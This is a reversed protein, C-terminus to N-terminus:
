GPEPLPQGPAQEKGLASQRGDTASRVPRAVGGTEPYRKRYSAMFDTMTDANVVSRAVDRFAQPQTIRDDSILKFAGADATKSMPALYRGRLRNLSLHEEGLVYALGARLADSRQALTLPEDRQWADGLVREYSEGAERWKKGKWYIDARLRDVDEGSDNALVEIALDTRFLEGLARAEILTRPRRLDEPVSALRTARLATLAQTPQRNQLYMIALRTAVSSRAVGELRNKIQHELIETAESVLDLDHLRDALRRAIEDGRRGVPMLSRFEQYIALAEVKSLKDTEKNLFLNEFRRGMAEEMRRTAPHDPMIATARQSALFAERWRGENAYFEGLRELSKVEVESRRWIAALTEFEARADEPTIKGDALGASARGFRAEAAIRRDRSQMALSYSNFAEANQGQSEALRAALLQQVNPDRFRTDIREFALLQDRAFAPEQAEIAAVIAFQRFESQLAEPYRDLEYQSLKFNAAAQPYRLAKADVVAQLLKQEGEVAIAPEALLRTADVLRGMMTSAFAKLFLIQKSTGAQRDDASLVDLVALAEPYLQNALYFHALKARAESRTVRPAEAAARLFDRETERITGRSDRNWSDLDLMLARKQVPPEVKEKPLSSLNLKIEHGILVSEALRKITVAEDIPLAAFGALTPEISFEAFVMGKPNALAANPVPVLALRQGSEPDEIMHLAGAKGVLAELAERGADDFARRTTIMEGSFASTTGETKGRQIILDRDKRLLWFRGESAPTVRILTGGKVRAIKLGEINKTLAPPISPMNLAEGTEVLVFLGRGRQVIAVPADGLEGLRLAFGQPDIGPEILTEIPRQADLAQISITQPPTPEAAAKAEATKPEVTKPEATKPEATKAAPAAKSADPAALAARATMEPAKGAPEAPAEAAKPSPEDEIRAGDTREFDISFTDDERFGRFRLGTKPKLRIRLSEEAPEVDVGDVLGALRARINEASITFNADFILSIEGNRDDFTVPATRPMQFTARKFQPATGVRLTLERQVLKAEDQAIKRLRDEAQRARRVLDQVVEAPLAPPLGVWNQPLIDLYLREGAPKLDVRYRENLGLRLSKGDPDLRAISIYAPLQQNLKDLDMSIPEEFRVVLVANFLQTEAKIEKDLTLVIRGYGRMDSGVATGRAAEAPILGLAFALAVLPLLWPVRRFLPAAAFRNRLV